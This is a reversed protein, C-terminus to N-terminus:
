KPPRYDHYLFRGSFITPRPFLIDFQQYKKEEDPPNM